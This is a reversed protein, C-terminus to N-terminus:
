AFCFCGDTMRSDADPRKIIAIGTTGGQVRSGVSVTVKADTGLHMEYLSGIIIEGVRQGRYVRTGVGSAEFKVSDTIYKGRGVEIWYEYTRGIPTDVGVVLRGTKLQDPVNFVGPRLWHGNEERTYATTGDTPSHIVHSDKESVYVEITGTARDIRTVIGDIPALVVLMVRDGDAM